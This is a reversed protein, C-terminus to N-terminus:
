LNILTNDLMDLEDQLRLQKLTQIAIASKAFDRLVDITTTHYDVSYKQISLSLEILELVIESARKAIARIRQARANADM